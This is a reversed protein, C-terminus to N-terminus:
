PRALVLDLFLAVGALLGTGTVRSTSDSRRQRRRPPRAHRALKRGPARGGALLRHRRCMGGGILALAFRPDTVADNGTEAAGRIFGVVVLAVVAGSIAHYLWDRKGLFEAAPDGADGAPLRFLRRVARRLSDFLRDLGHVM